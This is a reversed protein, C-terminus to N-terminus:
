KLNNVGLSNNRCVQFGYFAAIHLPPREDIAFALRSKIRHTDDTSSVFQIERDEGTTCRVRDNDTNLHGREIDMARDAM